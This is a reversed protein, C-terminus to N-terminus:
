ITEYYLRYISISDSCLKREGDLVMKDMIDGLLVSEINYEKEMICELVGSFNVDYKVRLVSNGIFLKNKLIIIGIKFIKINEAKITQLFDSLVM